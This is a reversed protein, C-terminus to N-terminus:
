RVSSSNKLRSCWYIEVRYPIQLTDNGRTAPHSALLQRTKKVLDAKEVDSLTGFAKASFLRDLIDEATGAFSYRFTEHHLASFDPTTSFARQWHLQDHANRNEGAQWLLRLQKVWDIEEDFINWILGLREEPKL